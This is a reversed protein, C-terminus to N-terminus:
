VPVTRCVDTMYTVSTTRGCLDEDDAAMSSPTREM